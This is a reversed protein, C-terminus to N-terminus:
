GDSEEKPWAFKIPIKIQQTQEPERGLRTTLEVTELRSRIIPEYAYRHFLTVECRLEAYPVEGKAGLTGFDPRRYIRLIQEFTADDVNGEGREPDYTDFFNTLYPDRWLGHMLAAYLRALKRTALRDDNELILISFVVRTTVSFRIEAANADGDPGNNEEALWCGLTPLSRAEVPLRRSYLPTFGEFAPLRLAARHLTEVLADGITQEPIAEPRAIDRVDNM